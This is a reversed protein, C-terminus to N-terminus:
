EEIMMTIKYYQQEINGRCDKYNPGMSEEITKQLIEDKKM